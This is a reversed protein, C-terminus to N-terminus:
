VLEGHQVLLQLKRSGQWENWQPTVWLTKLQSLHKANFWVAEVGGPFIMKLHKEKMIKTETKPDTKLKFVPNPFQHGFPELSDIDVLLQPKLDRVTVENDFWLKKNYVDQNTVMAMHINLALRFDNLRGQELTVGGAHAHGGFNLLTAKVSEVSIMSIIDIGSLSRVSGKLVGAVGEKRTLVFVPRQYAEVLKSAVIGVVGEHWEEEDPEPAVVLARPWPGFAAAPIEKAMDQWYSSKLQEEAQAKAKIVVSEQTERRELNLKELEVAFSQADELNKSTLLEFAKRATQLRGAANIRPGLVFGCHQVTPRKIQAADLIAKLGPRPNKQLVKLGHTLLIRNVGRVDMVDAVTAVAVLDLLKVLNPEPLGKREFYGGERLSSRLAIALFFAVGTGCLNKLDSTDDALHPNIIAFAEPLRSGALHHDLVIFDVGREKLALAPDVATIGCDVSIIVRAGQEALNTVAGVHVGYGESFRNPQYVVVEVGLSGFFDVLLSTGCTGDVDYDGYLFIKEGHEVAAVIREVAKKMNLLTSPDPLKSLEPNLHLELQQVTKIGRNWLIQALLPSCQLYNTIEQASKLPSETEPASLGWM